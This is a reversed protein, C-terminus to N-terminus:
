FCTCEFGTGVDLDNCECTQGNISQVCEAPIKCEGAPILCKNYEVITLTDNMVIDLEETLKDFSQEISNSSLISRSFALLQFSINVLM